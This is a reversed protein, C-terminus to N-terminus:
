RNKGNSIGAWIGFGGVTLLLMIGTFVRGAFLCYIGLCLLCILLAINWFRSNKM